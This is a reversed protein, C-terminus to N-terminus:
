SLRLELGSDWGVGRPTRSGNNELASSMWGRPSEVMSNLGHFRICPSLGSAM